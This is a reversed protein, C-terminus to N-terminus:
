EEKKANAVSPTVQGKITVFNDPIEIEVRFENGIFDSNRMNTIWFEPKEPSSFDYVYLWAVIKM